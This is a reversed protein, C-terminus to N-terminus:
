QTKAFNRRTAFTGKVRLLLLVLIESIMSYVKKLHQTILHLTVPTSSSNRFDLSTKAHITSFTSISLYSLKSKQDCSIAYFNFTTILVNKKTIVESVQGTISTFKKTSHKLKSCYKVYSSSACYYSFSGLKPIIKMLLCLLQM